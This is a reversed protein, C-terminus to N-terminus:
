ACSKKARNSGYRLIFRDMWNYLKKKVIKIVNTETENIKFSFPMDVGIYILM